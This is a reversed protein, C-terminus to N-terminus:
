WIWIFKLLLWYIDYLSSLYSDPSFLFLFVIILFIRHVVLSHVSVESETKYSSNSSSSLYVLLIAYVIYQTSIPVSKFDIMFLDNLLYSESSDSISEIGLHLLRFIFSLLSDINSDIDCLFLLFIFTEFDERLVIFLTLWVEFVLWYLIVVIYRFERVRRFILM